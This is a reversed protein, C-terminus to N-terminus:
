GSRSPVTEAVVDRLLADTLEARARVFVSAGIGSPLVLNLDGGRHAVADDAAHALLEATVLPATAPLGLDRLLGLIADLECSALLGLRAAIRASLAIDIAVAEGHNFRHDSATELLPSFTHGFDVVRALDEEFPNSQLESLMLEISRALVADIVDEPGAFRSAILSPGFARLDDFLRVDLVLAVKLIEAMGARLARPPLSCLWDPDSLVVEPPQFGGLASKVGNANVASKLGIGADVQGILSTPLRIVAVGRRYLSGAVSVVDTAVGGGLAILVDRRGIGAARTRAAVEAVSALTKTREQLALVTLSCSVDKAVLLRHLREGYYRAVTPTTIIAVRRSGIAETILSANGELLGRRLVVDYGGDRAFELRQVPSTRQAAARETTPSM